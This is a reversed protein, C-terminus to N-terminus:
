YWLMGSSMISFYSWRLHVAMKMEKESNRVLLRYANRQGEVLGYHVLNSNKRVNMNAM